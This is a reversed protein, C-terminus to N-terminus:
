RRDILPCFRWVVGGDEGELEELTNQRRRGGSALFTCDGALSRRCVRGAPSQANRALMAYGVVLIWVEGSM